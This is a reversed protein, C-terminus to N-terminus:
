KLRENIWSWVDLGYFLTIAAEFIHYEADKFHERGALSNIYEQCLNQLKFMFEDDLILLAPSSGSLRPKPKTDAIERREIEKRLEDDSINSFEIM